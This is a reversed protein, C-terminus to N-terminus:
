KPLHELMMKAQMAEPSDPYYTVIQNFKLKATEFDGKTMATQGQKMLEAATETPKPIDGTKPAAFIEEPIKVNINVNSYTIAQKKMDKPIDKGEMAVDIKAPVTFKNVTTFTPTVTIATGRDMSVMKTLLKEKNYTMDTPTETEKTINKFQRILWETTDIMLILKNFDLKKGEKPIFTIETVKTGDQLTTSKVTGTVNDKTLKYEVSSKKIGLGASSTYATVLPVVASAMLSGEAKAKLGKERAWYLMVTVDPFSSCKAEATLTDLGPKELGVYNKELQELISFADDTKVVEKESKEALGFKKETSLVTAYGILLIIAVVASMILMTKDKM